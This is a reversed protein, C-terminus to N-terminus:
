AGAEGTGAPRAADFCELAYGGGSLPRILDRLESVQGEAAALRAQLTGNHQAMETNAAVMESHEAQLTRITSEPYLSNVNVGPANDRRLASAIEDAVDARVVLRQTAGYATVQYAVPEVGVPESLRAVEARLADEMVRLEAFAVRWKEVEAELEAIRAAQEKTKVVLATREKDWDLRRQEIELRHDHQISQIHADKAAITADGADAIATLEDSVYFPRPLLAGVRERLSPASM